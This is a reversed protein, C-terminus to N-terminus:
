PVTMFLVWESGNWFFLERTDTAYFWACLGLPFGGDNPREVLLGTRSYSSWTPFSM